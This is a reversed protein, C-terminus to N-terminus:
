TFVTDGDGTQIKMKDIKQYKETLTKTAIFNQTFDKNFLFKHKNLEQNIKTNYVTLYDIQHEKCQKFILQIVPQINEIAGYFYPIKLQKDRKSINIIAIINSNKKLVYFDNKFVKAYSSFYYKKSFQATQTDTKIWPFNIIWNYTNLDRKFLEEKKYPNLFEKIELSNWNKIKEIKYNSLDIKNQPKLLLFINLFYDLGKLIYKIKKFFIHKNPLLEAFCFRRYYRKGRLAKITKFQNTKDYVLKSAEAYNSYMLKNDWEKAVEKFLLTSIKKRRHNPHTWNGSLWAFKIKHNEEYLVDAFVTRYGVLENQIFAMFLVIDTKNAHPNNIYSLARAHSIPKNKFTNYEKSHIFEIINNLAIKKITIM